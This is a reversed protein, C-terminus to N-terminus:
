ILSNLVEGVSTGLGLEGMADLHLLSATRSFKASDVIYTHPTSKATEVQAARVMSNWQLLNACSTPACSDNTTWQQLQVYAATSTEIVVIPTSRSGFVAQRLLPLFAKFAVEYTVPASAQLSDTEGQMWVVAAVTAVVGQQQEYVELNEVQSTLTTLLQQGPEWSALPTGPYVVKEVAISHHHHHWLYRAIGIEPGFIQKGTSAIIQPSDLVTPPTDVNSAYDGWFAFPVSTDATNVIGLLSLGDSQIAYSGDGEANSQGAIVIIKMHRVNQGAGAIPASAAFLAVMMFAIAGSKSYRACGPSATRSMSPLM